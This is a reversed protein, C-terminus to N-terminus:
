KKEAPKAAEAAPKAEAAPPLIKLLEVEFTLTANPGIPGPGNEGYALNAPIYFKYKSGVPMLQLGETWGPIVGKLPFSTPQGRDVSSDFKTGDLLTGTYHVEVTDTDKPKPGTGQKIVEYQLGSATTKVGAKSKNKALFEDGAKKNTEAKAKEEAQRKASLKTMFDQRIKLAEEQTLATKDGKISAEIAQVVVKMDIEDKISSLGKGVDMGVMYSVKDKETKLEQGFSATAAGLAAVVAAATLSKRLFQSM